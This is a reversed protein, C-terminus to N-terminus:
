PITVERQQPRLEAAAAAHNAASRELLTPREPLAGAVVDKKRDESAAPESKLPIIIVSLGERHYFLAWDLISQFFTTTTTM